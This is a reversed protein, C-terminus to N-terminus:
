NNSANPQGMEIIMQLAQESLALSQNIQIARRLCLMAEITKGQSRLVCGLVFWNTQQDPRLQISKRILQEAEPLRHKLLGAMGATFNLSYWNSLNATFAKDLAERAGAHQDLWFLSGALAAWPLSEGPQLITWRRAHNRAAKYHGTELLEATIQGIATAIKNLDNETTNQKPNM